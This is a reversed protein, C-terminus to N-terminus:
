TRSGHKKGERGTEGRTKNDLRELRIGYLRPAPPVSSYRPKPPVTSFMLYPKRAITAEIPAFTPNNNKERANKREKMIRKNREVKLKYRRRAELLSRRAGDRWHVMKSRKKTNARAMRKGTNQKLGFSVQGFSARGGEM